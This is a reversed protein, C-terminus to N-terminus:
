AFDVLLQDGPGKLPHRCDQIIQPSELWGKRPDVDEHSNQVCNRATLVEEVGLSALM